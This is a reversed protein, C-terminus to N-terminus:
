SSVRRRRRRTWRGLVGPQDEGAAARALPPIHPAASLPLYGKLRPDEAIEVARKYPRFGSRIYFELARPHDLSCTHVWLRSIPEAWARHLAEAMLVKGWGAGVAEPVLGFFSLECQSRERFDLELLGIDKGDVHLAFAQVLPHGVIARLMDDSMILRSFWLWPEGVRRFLARYRAEDGALPVLSWGSQEAAAMPPPQRMELYTVVAAITGSPLDTYGALRFKMRM